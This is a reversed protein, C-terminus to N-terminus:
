SFIPFQEKSKSSFLTYHSQMYIFGFCPTDNRHFKGRKLCCSVLVVGLQGTHQSVTNGLDTNLVAASGFAYCVLLLDLGQEGVGVTLVLDGELLTGVGSLCFSLLHAHDKGAALSGASVVNDAAQVVSQLSGILVVNEVAELAAGATQKFVVIDDEVVLIDVPVAVGAAEIDDAGASGLQLGLLLKGDNCLDALLVADVGDHDDATVVGVGVGCHQCLVKGCVLCANLDDATGLGDVAVQLVLVDLAGEAEVGSGLGVALDDTVDLAVGVGCLLIPVEHLDHATGSGVHSQFASQLGTGVDAQYAFFNGGLLYGQGLDGIIDCVGNSGTGCLAPVEANGDDGLADNLENGLEGLQDCLDVLQQCPLLGLLEVCKGGPLSLVGEDLCAQGLFGHCHEGDKGLGDLLLEEQLAVGVTVHLHGEDLGLLQEGCHNGSVQLCALGCAGVVALEGGEMVEQAVFATACEGGVEISVVAVGQAVVGEHEDLVTVGAVQGLNRVQGARSFLPNCATHGHGLHHVDLSSVTLILGNDALSQYLQVASGEGVEGCV